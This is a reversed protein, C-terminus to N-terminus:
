PTVQTRRAIALAQCRRSSYCTILLGVCSYRGLMRTTMQSICYCYLQTLIMLKNKSPTHKWFVVTAALRSVETQTIPLKNNSLIYLNILNNIVRFSHEFFRIWKYWSPFWLKFDRSSLKPVGNGQNLLCGDRILM